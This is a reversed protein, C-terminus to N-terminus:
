FELLEQVSHHAFVKNWDEETLNDVQSKSLLAFSEEDEFNFVFKGKVNKRSQTFVWQLMGLVQQHEIHSKSMIEYDDYMQSNRGELEKIRKEAIDLKSSLEVQLKKTEFQIKLIPNRTCDVDFQLKDIYNSLNVRQEDYKKSAEEAKELQYYDHKSDVIRDSGNSTICYAVYLKEKYLVYGSTGGSMMGEKTLLVYHSEENNDIEVITVMLSFDLTSKQFLNLNKMKM